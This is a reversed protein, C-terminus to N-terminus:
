RGLIEEVTTQDTKKNLAMIMQEKHKEVFESLDNFFERLFARYQIRLKLEEAVEKYNGTGHENLFSALSKCELNINYIELEIQSLKETLVEIM